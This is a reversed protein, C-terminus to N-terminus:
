IGGFAGEIADAVTDALTEAVKDASFHDTWQYDASENAVAVATEEGPVGQQMGQERQLASAGQGSFPEEHAPPIEVFSHRSLALNKLQAKETMYKEWIKIHKDSLNKVSAGRYFGLLKQYASTPGYGSIWSQRNAGNAWDLVSNIIDSNDFDSFPNLSPWKFCLMDLLVIALLVQNEELHKSAWDANRLQSYRDLRKQLAEHVTAPNKQSLAMLYAIRIHLEKNKDSLGGCSLGRGPVLNRRQLQQGLEKDIEVIAKLNFERLFAATEKTSREEEILQQEIKADLTQEDIKRAWDKVLTEDINKARRLLLPTSRVVTSSPLIKHRIASLAKLKSDADRGTKAWKVVETVLSVGIDNEKLTRTLSIAMLAHARVHKSDKHTYRDIIKKLKEGNHLGSDVPAILDYLKGKLGDQFWNGNGKSSALLYAARFYLAVEFRASGSHPQKQSSEPKLIWDSALDAGWPQPPEEGIKTIAEDLRALDDIKQQVLSLGPIDFSPAPESALFASFVARLMALSDSNFTATQSTNEAAVYEAADLVMRISYKSASELLSKLSTIGKENGAENLRKGLESDQLYTGAKWEMLEEQLNIQMQTLERKRDDFLLRFNACATKAAEKMEQVRTEDTHEEADQASLCEAETIPTATEQKRKEAEIEKLAVIQKRFVEQSADSQGRLNRIAEGTKQAKIASIRHDEIWGRLERAKAGTENPLEELEKQLKARHLEEQKQKTLESEEAKEKGRVEFPEHPGYRGFIKDGQPLNRLAMRADHYNQWFSHKTTDWFNQLPPVNGVVMQIPASIPFTVFNVFSGAARWIRNVSSTLVGEDENNHYLELPAILLWLKRLAHLRKIRLEESDKENERSSEESETTFSLGEEKLLNEVWHNATQRAVEGAEDYGEHEILLNAYRMEIWEVRHRFNEHAIGGTEPFFPRMNDVAQWQEPQKNKTQWTDIAEVIKYFIGYVGFGLVGYRVSVKRANIADLANKAKTGWWGFSATLLGFHFFALWLAITLKPCSCHLYQEASSLWSGESKAKKLGSKPAVHADESGYFPAWLTMGTLAGLGITLKKSVGELSQTRSEHDIEADEDEDWLDSGEFAADDAFDDDTQLAKKSDKKKKGKKNEDKKRKSKKKKSKPKEEESKRNKSKDAEAEPAEPQSKPEESQPKLDQQPEVVNVKIDAGTADEEKEDADSRKKHKKSKKKKKEKRNRRRKKKKRDRKKKKKLYKRKRREERTEDGNTVGLQLSSLPQEELTKTHPDLIEDEDELEM